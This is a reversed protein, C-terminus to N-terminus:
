RAGGSYSRGAAFGQVYAILRRYRNMPADREMVMHARMERAAAIAADYAEAAMAAETLGALTRLRNPTRQLQTRYAAMAADLRGAERLLDAEVERAPRFAVPPGFDVPLAAEAEAAARATAVAADMSGEGALVLAQATGVWVPAYGSIWDDGAQEALRALEATMGRARATEGRGLAVLIDGWLWGMRVSASAGDLDLRADAVPSEWDEADALYWNRQWTASNTARATEGAQEICAMVHAEADELRTQQQYGYTLWENYHGCWTPGQGREARQRDVVADANINADVVDAWMGRALFIHSTMHQAHGADPALPAYARAAEMALVAHTPDDFSHIVYHAAGPHEPNAEFVDLAIAGAEMYRPVDRDGQSLGLIALAHFARAELDDPWRAAIDGMAAAYLTDLRAKEGAGFLVDVAELYARERPTPAKAARAEPTPAYRDLVALASQTDKQNWVPHNHTMAEGWYALAFDPDAEQARRFSEAAREYEFSHLLLVGALFDEQAGPAGSNPFALSGLGEIRTPSSFAATSEQAALDTATAPLIVALALVSGSFALRFTDLSPNM